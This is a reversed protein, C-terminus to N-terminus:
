EEGRAYMENLLQRLKMLQRYSFSEELIHYMGTTDKKIVIGSEEDIYFISTFHKIIM